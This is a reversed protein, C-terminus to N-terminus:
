KRKRFLLWAAFCGFTLDILGALAVIMQQIDLGRVVMNSIGIFILVPGPIWCVLTLTLLCITKEFTNLDGKKPELRHLQASASGAYTSRSLATDSDSHSSM